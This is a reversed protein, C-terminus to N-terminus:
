WYHSSRLPSARPPQGHRVLRNAVDEDDAPTRGAPHGRGTQDLRQTPHVDADAQDLGVPDAWDAHALGGQRRDQFEDALEAHVLVGQDMLDLAGELQPDAVTVPGPRPVEVEMREPGGARAHTRDGERGVPQLHIQGAFGPGEFVIRDLGRGRELPAEGTGHMLGVGGQVLDGIRQVEVGRQEGAIQAAKRFRAAHLADFALDAAGREPGLVAEDLRYRQLAALGELGVQEDVAAAKAAHQDLLRQAGAILIPRM